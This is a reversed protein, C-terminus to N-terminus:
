GDGLHIQFVEPLAALPFDDVSRAVLVVDLVVAALLDVRVDGVGEVDPAQGEEVGDVEDDGAEEDREERHQNEIERGVASLLDRETDGDQEGESDEQEHDGLGDGGGRQDDREDALVQEEGHDEDREADDDGHEHEVHVVARRHGVGHRLPHAGHEEPRQRPDHQHPPRNVV